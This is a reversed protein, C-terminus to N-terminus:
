GKKMAAAPTASPARDQRFISRFAPDHFLKATHPTPHRAAAKRLVAAALGGLLPAVVYASAHAWDATAFAPGFWRAPNFGAGSVPAELGVLLSTAAVSVLPTWRLWRDHSVCAFVVSAYVLSTALEGAACALPGIGSGPGLAAFRVARAPGALAVGAALTGLLGGATQAVVYGAFDRPHMKGLLLFGLSMMPNLHAGSLRGPPSIAILAGSGGICAGALFLRARAPTVLGPMPSRPDFWLAVFGVIAFLLIATGVFESAYEKVHAGEAKWLHYAASVDM